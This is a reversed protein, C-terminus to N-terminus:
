RIPVYERSAMGSFGGSSRVRFGKASEQIVIEPGYEAVLTDKCEECVAQHRIQRGPLHRPRYTVEARAVRGCVRGNHYHLCKAKRQKTTHSPRHKM